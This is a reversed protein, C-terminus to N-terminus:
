GLVFQNTNWSAGGSAVRLIKIDTTLLDSQVREFVSTSSELQLLRVEVLDPPLATYVIVVKIHIDLGFM